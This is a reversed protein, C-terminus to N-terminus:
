IKILNLSPYLHVFNEQLDFVIKGSAAQVLLNRKGAFFDVEHGKRAVLLQPEPRLQVPRVDKCGDDQLDARLDAVLGEVDLNWIPDVESHRRLHSLARPMEDQVDDMHLLEPQVLISGVVAEKGRPVAM